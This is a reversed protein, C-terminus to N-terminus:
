YMIYGVYLLYIGYLLGLALSLTYVHKKVAFKVFKDSYGPVLFLLVGKLLSFWGLLTVLGMWNLGWREYGIVQAVGIGLVFLGALMFEAPEMKALISTFQKRNFIIGLCILTIGLGWTRALFLSLDM